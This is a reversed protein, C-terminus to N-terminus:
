QSYTNPPSNLVRAYLDRVIRDQEEGVAGYHDLGPTANVEIVYYDGDDIALDNCALDIGCFRLGFEHAVSVALERWRPAVAHTMEIANGGASLNSIDLLRIVEGCDPTHTLDIGLEALRLSIRRDSGHVKTKRGVKWFSEQLDTMLREINSTGNGVVTLPVRHYASILTGDLVVLRYDPMAVDREVLAVRVREREYTDLVEAIHESDQCKWVNRGMSGDIPKVYVPYGIVNEVYPLVDHSSRVVQSDVRIQSLWWPMIFTQGDPICFGNKALFYRTYGKDKAVADTAGANLGVDNGRTMRVGGDRYKIRTVYGFEPEVEVSAVAPLCGAQYLTLVM